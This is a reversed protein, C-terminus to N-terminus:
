VRSGPGKVAGTITFGVSRMDSIGKEENTDASIMNSKDFGIEELRGQVTPVTAADKPQINSLGSEYVLEDWILCGDCLYIDYVATPAVYGFDLGTLLKRAHKPVEPIVEWEDPTFALGESEIGWESLSYIRYNNPNTHKLKEIRDIYGKDFFGFNDGLKHGNIWFNDRYTTKIFAITGCTSKKSFSYETLKSLKKILPNKGTVYDPLDIFTTQDVLKRKLWSKMSVPNFPLILKQNEMGRMSSGVQEYFEYSFQDTEDLAVIGVNELGKLSDENNNDSGDITLSNQKHTIYFPAKKPIVIPLVINPKIKKFIRSTKLLQKGIKDVADKGKYRLAMVDVNSNVMHMPLSQAVSYSKGSGRGGMLIITFINPDRLAKQLHFFIPNFVQIPLNTM